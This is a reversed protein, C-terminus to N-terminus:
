HGPLCKSAEASPLATCFCLACTDTFLCLPPKFRPAGVQVEVKGSRYGLILLRKCDEQLDLHAYKESQLQEQLSARAAQESQLQEQLSARAAQASTLQEQLSAGAAQESQLHMQTTAHAAEESALQEQLSTCAAEGSALQTQLDAIVERATSLKEAIRHWDQTTSAARCPLPPAQIAASGPGSSNLRGESDHLHLWASHPHVLHCGPIHRCDQQPHCTM